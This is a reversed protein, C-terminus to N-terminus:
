TAGPDQAPDQARSSPASTSDMWDSPKWLADLQALMAVETATQEIHDARGQLRALRVLLADARRREAAAAKRAEHHRAAAALHMKAMRRAQRREGLGWAAVIAVLGTAVWVDVPM